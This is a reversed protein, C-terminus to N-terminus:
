SWFYRPVRRYPKEFADPGARHRQIRDGLYHVVQVPSAPPLLKDEAYSGTYSLLSGTGSFHRTHHVVQVGGRTSVSIEPRRDSGAVDAHTHGCLYLDALPYVKTMKEAIVNLKSGLLGGGGAGHHAVIKWHAAGVQIRGACTKGFYQVGLNYCILEDPDIGVARVTRAGHNGGVGGIIQDKIPELLQTIGDIQAKPPLVQEYVSGVSSTLANETLDGMLIVLHGERKIEDIWDQM